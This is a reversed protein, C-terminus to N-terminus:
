QTARVLAREREMWTRNLLSCAILICSLFVSFSVYKVKNHNHVMSDCLFPFRGAFLHKSTLQKGSRRVHMRCLLPMRTRWRAREYADSLCICMRPSPIYINRTRENIKTPCYFVCPWSLYIINLFPRYIAM